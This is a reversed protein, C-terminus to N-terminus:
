EMWSVCGETECKGHVHGNYASQGLHLRGNCVPCEVVEHRDAAPKPKVRWAGAVKIAAMTRQLCRESEERDAQVEESTPEKRFPCPKAESARGFPKTEAPKEGPKLYTGGRESKHIFLICPKPGNPWNVEYSIGRKCQDNQVGNFHICTGHKM